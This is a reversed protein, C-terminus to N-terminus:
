AAYGPCQADAILDFCADKQGKWSESELGMHLTKCKEEAFSASTPDNFSLVVSTARICVM